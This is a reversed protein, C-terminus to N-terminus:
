DTVSVKIVIPVYDGMDWTLGEYLERAEKFDKPSVTLEFVGKAGPNGGFNLYEPLRARSLDLGPLLNNCCYLYELGTADVINLETLPTGSVSIRRTKAGVTLSSISGTCLNLSISQIGPPLLLEDIPNSQIDLYEIQTNSVDLRRVNCNQFYLNQLKVAKSCDIEELTKTNMIGFGEIGPGLVIKKLGSPVDTHDVDVQKLNPNNSTDLFPIMTDKFRLDELGPNGSLDLSGLECDQFYLTKLWPVQGFGISQVKSNRVTIGTLNKFLELGRFDADPTINEFILSKRKMVNEYTMPGSDPNFAAVVTWGFEDSMDRDLTGVQKIDFYKNQAPDSPAIVIRAERYREPNAAVRIVFEHNGEGGSPVPLEIWGEGGSVYRIDAKWDVYSDITLSVEGGDYPAELESESLTIWVDPLKQCACVLPLLVLFVKLNKIM